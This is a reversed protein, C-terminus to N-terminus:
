VDNPSRQTASHLLAPRWVTTRLVPDSNSVVTVALYAPLIPRRPGSPMLCIPPGVAADGARFVPTVIAVAVVIIIVAAGVVVVIVVATVIVIVPAAMTAEAMALRLFLM